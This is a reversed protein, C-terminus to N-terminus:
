IPLPSNNVVFVDDRHHIPKDISANCIWLPHEDRAAARTAENKIPTYVIDTVNTAADKWGWWNPNKVLVLRQDPQWEGM